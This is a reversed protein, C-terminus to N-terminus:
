KDKREDSEVKAFPDSMEQVVRTYNAVALAIANAKRAAMTVVKGKM